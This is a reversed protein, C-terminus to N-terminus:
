EYKNFEGSVYMKELNHGERLERETANCLSTIQGDKSLIFLCDPRMIDNNMLNTNHTTMVVQIDAYRKKFYKVLRESMEYHYFADFEDMYIFSPERPIVIYRRYYDALSITGSSANEIFPLPTEHDFYLESRGDASMVLKLKCEIGMANLFNEFDQLNAKDRLYEYLSDYIMIGTHGVQETVCSKVMRLIFDKMQAIPSGADFMTNSVLYRLFPISNDVMGGDDVQEFESVNLSGANIENLDLIFFVKKDASYKFIVKDDISLEEEVVALNANRSYKYEVTRGDFIFEYDFYAPTDGRDANTIRKKRNDVLNERLVSCIDVIASGLNTKGTANRGYIISKGILGNTVCDKNFQYGGATDFNLEIKKEFNKYNEVSFKKIM